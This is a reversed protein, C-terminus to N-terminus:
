ESRHDRLRMVNGPSSECRQAHMRHLKLQLDSAIDEEARTGSSSSDEMSSESATTRCEYAEVASVPIRWLTGGLKFGQLDGNKLLRRVFDAGVEWRDALTEPTFPRESM